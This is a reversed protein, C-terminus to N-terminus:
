VGFFKKWGTKMNQLACVVETYVASQLAEGQLDDDCSFDCHICKRVVELYHHGLTMISHHQEDLLKRAEIVEHPTGDLQPGAIDKQTCIELLAVGLKALTLNRIGFTHKLVLSEQKFETNPSDHDLFRNSLHLSNLVDSIDSEDAQSSDTFYAVDQLTWAQPLWSTSHYQLVAEALKHALTIQQLVRFRQVLSKIPMAGRRRTSSSVDNIALKSADYFMFRTLAQSKAIELFGVCGDQCALTSSRVRRVHCCVSKTTKLDLMVFSQAQTTKTNSTTPTRVCRVNDKPDNIRVRKKSKAKSPLKQTAVQSADRFGHCLTNALAPPPSKPVRYTTLSTISRIQLWIPMDGSPNQIVLNPNPQCAVVVDLQVNDHGSKADLSLKAQHGNHSTNTCSWSDHISEGLQQSAVRIQQYSRPVAKRIICASPIDRRKQIKCRQKRLKSLSKNWRDLSDLQRIYENEKRSTNFAHWIKRIFEHETQKANGLGDELKTLSIRTERLIDRLRTAINQCLEYDQQMLSRLRQEIDKGQEQWSKHTPDEMMESIDSPQVITAQLLLRCDNNFNAAAVQFRLQIDCAVEAHQSFTALRRKATSYSKLIEVVVPVVGFVLGAIEIGSM